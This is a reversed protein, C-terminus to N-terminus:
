KAPLLLDAATLHLAQQVVPVLLVTDHHVGEGLLYAQSVKLCPVKQFNRFTIQFGKIM